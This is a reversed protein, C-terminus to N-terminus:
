QVHVAVSDRATGSELRVYVTGATPVASLTARVFGNQTLGISPVVTGATTSVRVRTGDLVPTNSTALFADILATGSQSAITDPTTAITITTKPPAVLGSVTITTTGSAKGSTATITADGALMGSRFRATALGNTTLVVITAPTVIACSTDSVACLGGVPTSFTVQTGDDVNEGASTVVSATVLSADGGIAITTPNASVKVTSGTPAVLPVDGCSPSVLLILTLLVSVAIRGVSSSVCRTNM